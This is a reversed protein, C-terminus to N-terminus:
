TKTNNAKVVWQYSFLTSWLRTLLYLISYFSKGIPNNVFFPNVFELPIPTAHLEKIELGVNQLLSFLTKRTYFHLHTRDLIGKDTYNFRGFLLNIRVWLNAVNPVSIIFLCDEQQASVVRLLQEEPNVLHELIDGCVVAEYGALYTDPTQELTGEFVEEYLNIADGLWNANPEIGRIIYGRGACRRALTGSGAGVDLVRAGRPLGELMNIMRSHSSWRNPKDTYPNSKEM